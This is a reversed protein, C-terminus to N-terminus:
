YVDNDPEGTVAKNLLDEAKIVESEALLVLGLEYYTPAHDDRLSLAKELAQRANEFQKELRFLRGLQYQNEANKPNIKVLKKYTIM